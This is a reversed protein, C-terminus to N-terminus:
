VLHKGCAKLMITLNIGRRGACAAEKAGGGDACGWWWHKGHYIQPEGYCLYIEATATGIHDNGDEDDDDGKDGEYSGM